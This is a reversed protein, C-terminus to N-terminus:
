RREGLAPYTIGGIRQGVEPMVGRAEELAARQQEARHQYLSWMAQAGAARQQAESPADEPLRNSPSADTWGGAIEFASPEVTDPAIDRVRHSQFPNKM